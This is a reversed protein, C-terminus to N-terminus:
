IWIALTGRIQNARENDEKSEGRALVGADRDSDRASVHALRYCAIRMHNCRRTYWSMSLFTTRGHSKWHAGTCSCPSPLLFVSSWLSASPYTAYRSPWDTTSSSILQDTGACYCCPTWVCLICQVFWVATQWRPMPHVASTRSSCFYSDEPKQSWAPVGEQGM